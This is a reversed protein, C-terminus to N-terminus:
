GKYAESLKRRIRGPHIMQIAWEYHGSTNGSIWAILPLKGTWSYVNLILMEEEPIQLVVDLIQHYSTHFDALVMDLPRNKHKQRYSENLQGMQRWNYGVEPTVVTEGRRGAEYWSIWRQEWDVLHQLIDKVSWEGMSGPYALEESTLGAIKKELMERQAVISAILDSKSTPHM